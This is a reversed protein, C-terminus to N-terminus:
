TVLALVELHKTTPDINRNVEEPQGSARVIAEDTKLPTEENLRQPHCIGRQNLKRMLSYLRQRKIFIGNKLNQHGIYNQPQKTNLFERLVDAQPKKVILYPHIYDLVRDVTTYTAVTWVLVKRHKPNDRKKIYLHGGLLLYIEKLAEPSSMGIKIVPKFYQRNKKNAPLIGIYGEGDVLGALYRRSIKKKV